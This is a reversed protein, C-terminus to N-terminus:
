LKKAYVTKICHSILQIRFWIAHIEPDRHRVVNAILSANESIPDNAVHTLAIIYVPFMEHM